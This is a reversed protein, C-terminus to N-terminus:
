VALNDGLAAELRKSSGEIADNVLDSFSLPIRQAALHQEFLLKQTHPDRDAAVCRELVAPLHATGERAAAVLREFDDISLVYVRELPLYRECDPDPYDLTGEPYTEKLGVGNCALLDRNTVILLYDVDAGRVQRYGHPRTRVGVSATWGQLMARRLARTKHSFIEASGVVMVSEDFLGAKSEIFVNVGPYTLLADPVPSERGLIERLEEEEILTGGVGRLQTRIHREFIRSFPAIFNTRNESLVSHVLSEM